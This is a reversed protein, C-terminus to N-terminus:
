DIATRQFCRDDTLTYFDIVENLNRMVYLDAGIGDNGGLRSNGATRGYARLRNNRALHSDTLACPEIGVYNKPSLCADQVSLMNSASLYQPSCRCPRQFLEQVLLRM